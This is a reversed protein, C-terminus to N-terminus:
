DFVGRLAQNWEEFSPQSRGHILGASKGINYGLPLVAGVIGKVLPNDSYERVYARHEYPAIYNQDSQSPFKDRLERFIGLPAKSLVEPPPVGESPTMDPTWPILSGSPNQANAKVTDDRQGMFPALISLISSLDPM